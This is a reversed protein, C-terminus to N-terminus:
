LSELFTILQRKQTATLAQYRLKVQLAEGGHRLIAENFTLSLGDHMLQNRTRVGWLPPTRVTTRTIPGGNQVIFDGTGVDHLLFDGYPHFKKRALALPITFAGGNIPQCRNGTMLTPVHCVSCSYQGNMSEFLAEGAAVDTSFKAIIDPDRPPAQTARMFEAFVEIDQGPDEGCILTPDDDCPTNDPVLDFGSGFGVFRGLSTNENPVLLNTIGMENLYADGSFSLLSAHQNKWGFRGIREKGGAELVPVKIVLGHVENGTQGKQKAALSILTGDTVAEVFGDGLTNLSTRLTRTPEEGTIAGGPPIIGATYLPPVREQVKASMHSDANNPTPIGRQNILSGGPADFFTNNETHGARLEMIQSIAGTVPNQHCAGCARDNYVPGLGDEIVEIEDFIAKDNEFDGPVPEVCEDPPKGQPILGNTEGDFGFALAEMIPPQACSEKASALGEGTPEKEKFFSFTTEDTTSVGELDVSGPTWTADTTSARNAQDAQEQVVSHVTRNAAPL